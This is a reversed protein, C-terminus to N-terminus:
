GRRSYKPLRVSTIKGGSFPDRKIGIKVAEIASAGADMAGIAFGSGTGIAYHYVRLRQWIRGEYLWVLGRLDILIGNVDDLKPLPNKKVLAQYLRAIDESANAGGFLRGDKLRFVKVDRDTIVHSSDTGSMTERGDGALVGKCYAITTM